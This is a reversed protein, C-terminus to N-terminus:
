QKRDALEAYVREAAEAMRGVTYHERVGTAGAEGLRRAREPDRWLELIADALAEANDPEVLLGGGTRRLVEPFAGRNPQVVPVGTAMAEFLFIGKPEEYTAPVSFVDVSQLFDIKQTRDV